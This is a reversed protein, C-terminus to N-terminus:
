NDYGGDLRRPAIEEETAQDPVSSSHPHSSPSSPFTNNHIDTQAKLSDELEKVVGKLCEIELKLGEEVAESTQQQGLMRQLQSLERQYKLKELRLVNLEKQSHLRNNVANSSGIGNLSGLMDRFSERVADATVKAASAFSGPISAITTTALTDADDQYSRGASTKRKKQEKKKTSSSSSPLSRRQRNSPTTTMPTGTTRSTTTSILPPPGRTREGNSSSDDDDLVDFVSPVNAGDGGCYKINIKQLSTRLLDYNEVMQWLYLIYLQKGNVFSTKESLEVGGKDGPDAPNDGDDSSDDDTDDDDEGSEEEEEEEDEDNGTKRLQRGLMKRVKRYMKGGDGQGSQTWGTIARTLMVNMSAFREKCKDPTAPKMEAVLSHHIVESTQYELPVTGDQLPETTPAFDPDNFKDAILEWVSKPVKGQSKRNELFLRSKHLNNRV